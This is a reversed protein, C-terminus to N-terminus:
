YVQYGKALMNVIYMHILYVIYNKNLFTEHMMLELRLSHTQSLCNTKRKLETLLLDLSILQNYYCM